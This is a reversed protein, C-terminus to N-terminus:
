GWSKLKLTSTRRRDVATTLKVPTVVSNDQGSSKLSANEEKNRPLCPSQVLLQLLHRLQIACREATGDRTMHLRSEALLVEFFDSLNVAFRRLYNDTTHSTTRARVPPTRDLDDNLVLSTKGNISSATRPLEM